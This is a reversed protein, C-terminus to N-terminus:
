PRALQSQHPLALEYIVYIYIHVNYMMDIYKYITLYKLNHQWLHQSFCHFNYFSCLATKYEEYQVHVLRVGSAM